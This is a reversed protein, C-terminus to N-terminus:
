RSGGAFDGIRAGIKSPSIRVDTVCVCRLGALLCVVVGPFLPTYFSVCPRGGPCSRGSGRGMRHSRNEGGIGALTGFCLFALLAFGVQSVRLCGANGELAWRRFGDIRPIDPRGVGPPKWDKSDM